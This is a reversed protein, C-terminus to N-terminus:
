AAEGVFVFASWFFPHEFGAKRLQRRAATWADLKSKGEKLSKFFEDMLMVSANESVSWLSMLVSKAGACQFARGMSMIGEGALKVGVGTQCATLCAIEANMKLGAVESMTLLGDTGPPVMTLFLVPEMIGPINNGAYGHTAFVLSQYQSLSPVVKGMFATKTSGLGTYVDCSEGYLTELNKALNQTGELRKLKVSGGTEEEMAVMLRSFRDKGKEASTTEPKSSQLRADRLEFVPDAMVLIREGSIKKKGLTRALTLATLSQNYVVPHRDGLYTLGDPYYSQRGEKWDVAGGTVLAEFPLLALLGDPIITISNGEPVLKMTDALLRKYLVSAAKVNFERLRAQEFPQRFKRIEDELDDLKWDVLIAKIVQKGKLLRVGVEEGLIDLVLYYDQPGVSAEELKIPKPYKVEAYNRHKQRLTEIFTNRDSEAKKIQSTLDTFRTQDLDKPIVSRGIKISALKDNVNMEQKLTEQPVDFYSGEAGQALNDAFDRAKISESPYISQAGKGQKLAVRVLGKAPEARAFGNIKGALFNKRESLLLNSRIEETINMASTYHKEAERYNKMVECAKGLGTLATFLEDLNDQKKAANMLQEYHKKAVDPKSKLLYFRGLSSDYDAQKVHPEAQDLSGSDMYLDAIIKNALDTPAGIRTLVELAKQATELAKDNRGWESFVVAMRTLAEAEARSDGIKKALESAQQYKEVAERYQGRMRLLNGLNNLTLLRRSGAEKDSELARNFKEEAKVYQARNKELVATNNLTMQAEAVLGANTFRELAEQSIREAEEYNGWAIFVAALNRLAVAEQGADQLRRLIELVQQYNEAALRFQGTLFYIHGLYQRAEREAQADRKLQAQALASKHLKVAGAPDRWALDRLSKDIDIALEAIYPARPPVLKRLPSTDAIKKKKPAEEAEMPSPEPAKKELEKWRKEAEDEQPIVARPTISIGIGIGFGGGGGRPPRGGGGGGGHGGPGSAVLMDPLTIGLFLAAVAAVLSRLM